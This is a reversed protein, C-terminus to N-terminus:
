VIEKIINLTPKIVFGDEFCNMRRVTDNLVKKWREVNGVMITNANGCIYINGNREYFFASVFIRERRHLSRAIKQWRNVIVDLKNAPNYDVVAQFSVNPLSSENMVLAYTGHRLREKLSFATHFALEREDVHVVGGDLGGDPADPYVAKGYVVLHPVVGINCIENNLIEIIETKQSSEPVALFFLNEM